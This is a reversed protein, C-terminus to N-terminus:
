SLMKRASEIASALTDVEELTNYFAVSARATAPVGFFEMLPMACHHGARIAIGAEHDLITALDHPHVGDVVFSVVAAKDAATGILRVGDIAAIVGTAHDLLQQEWAGINNMGVSTLYDATAGLGVAGAINPTGAEFKAPPEAYTTSEFSVQRIMEGGGHYPPMAALHEAKGYLVGIGTPGFMKHGSVCYFDCDLDRVDVSMHPMAQAGDLLVPIGREHAMRICQRVPNVTGIANSVHVMAVMAVDPTLLKEFEELLLEGRDNIPAAKVRAGTQGCLLQWPVINSHHEMQTLLVTDGEGLRERGFTQAVLNVGETVGRVFVIESSDRANLFARMRDRAGEYLATAREALAHVGRHVNAHDHRYYHNMAEIMALPKQGSAANDLYVLPKGYVEKHLIPFDERIRRVDFTGAETMPTATM